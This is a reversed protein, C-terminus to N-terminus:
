YNRKLMDILGQAKLTSSTLEDQMEPIKELNSVMISLNKLVWVSWLPSGALGPYPAILGSSTDVFVSELDNVGKVLESILTERMGEDDLLGKEIVALLTARLACAASIAEAHGFWSYINTEITTIMGRLLQAPNSYVAIRRNPEVIISNGNSLLINTFTVPLSEM